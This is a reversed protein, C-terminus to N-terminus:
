DLSYSLKYRISKVREYYDYELRCKHDLVNESIDFIFHFCQTIPSLHQSTLSELDIEQKKLEKFLDGNSEIWFYLRRRLKNIREITDRDNFERVKPLCDDLIVVFHEVAEISNKTNLRRRSNIKLTTIDPIYDLLPSFRKLREAEDRFIDTTALQQFYRDKYKNWHHHIFTFIALSLTVVFTGYTIQGLYVTIPFLILVTVLIVLGIRTDPERDMVYSKIKEYIRTLRGRKQGDQM